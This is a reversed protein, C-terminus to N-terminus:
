PDSVSFTNVSYLFQHHIECTGPTPLAPIHFVPPFTVLGGSLQCLQKHVAQSGPQLPMAQCCM